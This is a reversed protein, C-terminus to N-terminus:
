KGAPKVTPNPDIGGVVDYTDKSDCYWGGSDAMNFMDIQNDVYMDVDHPSLPPCQAAKIKKSIEALRTGQIHCTKTVVL